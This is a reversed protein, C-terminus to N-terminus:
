AAGRLFFFVIEVGLFWLLGFLYVGLGFLLEWLQVRGGTVEALALWFLSMALLVSGVTLWRQEAYFSDARKFQGLPDLKRIEPDDDLVAFRKQIDFTGDAKSYVPDSSLPAGLTQLNPVLFQGLNKAAPDGMQKLTDVGAAYVAYQYSFAAEEYAKRWNENSFAQKKIADILGIRSEDGASSGVVNTRWVALATTLSVIAILIANVVELRGADFWGSRAM